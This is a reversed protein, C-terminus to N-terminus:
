GAVKSWRNQIDKPHSVFAGASASSMELTSQLVADLAGQRLGANWAVLRRRQVTLVDYLEHEPILLSGNWLHRTTLYIFSGLINKCVASFDLLAPQKHQLETRSPSTGEEELSEFRNSVIEDELKLNRLLLLKHAHLDCVLSVKKALAAADPTSQKKEEDAAADVDESIDRQM